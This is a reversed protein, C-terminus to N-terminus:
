ASRPKRPRRILGLLEDRTVGLRAATERALSTVAVGPIFGFTPLTRDDLEVQLFRLEEGHHEAALREALDLFHTTVLARPSLEHLLEVVLQFLQEGESPNTGSCLEDLLILAGPCANEFVRRIRLLESGLRGETQGANPEELLSAFLGGALTVEARAAPVLWGGEALLQAYALSQLLRTKGGSNPGTVITVQGAAVEIGCPIPHLGSALLLPNFLAEFQSAGEKITAVQTRLGAVRARERFALQGLYLRVDLALQLLEAVEDEFSAFVHDVLRSLVEHEGVRYGRVWLALRTFLRKLPSVYFRNQANETLRVVEFGRVRGDVGVGVRLDMVSLNAEYDLVQALRRYAETERLAASWAALRALGSRCGEFAGLQDVVGRVDELLELRRRVSQSANSPDSSTIRKKLETLRAYLDELERALEPSAILEGLVERRFQADEAALPPRSLVACAYGLPLPDSPEEHRLSFLARAGETLFIDREFCHPEFRSEPLRVQELAEALAGGSDGAAYVFSVVRRVRALDLRPSPTNFLLDLSATM